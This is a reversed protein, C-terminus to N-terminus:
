AVGAIRSDAVLPAGLTAGDGFVGIAADAPVGASHLLALAHLATLPTQEAPKALVTNGAALAAAVQGTFIALPFNWPSICAFVGRGHLALTNREGAPGPLALPAAFRSRAQLAYYRCFDAAERVEAVADGYTRGGERVVVSVLARMQAELADAARELVAAREVAPRASWEEFAAAARDLAADLQAPATLPLAGVVRALNGPERVVQVGAAAVARVAARDAHALAALQALEDRRALDVGLSNARDPYLARPLPIREDPVYPDPLKALPDGVLDELPVAPDAIQHVFSTNAGNELLRRVLYPLLENFNGVPAYIRCPAASEAALTEYLAEGMGLLRQFEFEASGGALELIVAVTRSNHTAFAPYIADQAGLLTRACALYSVDTAAKRTYVPYDTMGLVQARKIESDWYAGKVLRVALRRRASRALAVLWDCVAPARKQYAQVALGLGAWGSFEADRALAEALDLTIELRESEEADLTLGIAGDRALRAL